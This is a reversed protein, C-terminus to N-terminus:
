FFAEDYVNETWYSYNLDYYLCFRGSLTYPNSRKDCHSDYFDEDLLLRSLNDATLELIWIKGNDCEAAVTTFNATLIDEHVRAIKKEEIILSYNCVETVGITGGEGIDKPIVKKDFLNLLEQKLLYRSTM